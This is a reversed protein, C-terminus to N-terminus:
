KIVVVTAAALQISEIQGGAREVPEVRLRPRDHGSDHTRVPGDPAAQRPGGRRDLNSILAHEEARRSLRGGAADGVGVVIHGAHM